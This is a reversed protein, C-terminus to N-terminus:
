RREPWEPRVASPEIHRATCYCLLIVAAAGWIGGYAVVALAFAKLILLVAAFLLIYLM